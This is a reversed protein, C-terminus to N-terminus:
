VPEGSVRKETRDISEPRLRSTTQVTLLLLGDSRWVNTLADLAALPHPVHVAGTWTLSPEVAAPSAVLTNGQSLAPPAPRASATQYPDSLCTSGLLLLLWAQFTKMDCTTKGISRVPATVPAAGLM